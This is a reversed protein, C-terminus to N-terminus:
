VRVEKMCKFNEERGGGSYKKFAIARVLINRIHINEGQDESPSMKSSDVSGVKRRIM